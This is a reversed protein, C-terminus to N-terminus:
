LGTSTSLIIIALGTFGGTVLGAPDFFYQVSVAILGTGLLIFLHAALQPHATRFAKM